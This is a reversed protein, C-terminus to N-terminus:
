GILTLIQSATDANARKRAYKSVHLAFLDGRTRLFHRLQDLQEEVQKFRRSLEKLRTATATGDTGTLAYYIDFSDRDRKAISVSSCKSLVLASLDVLAVEHTLHAGSPLVGDVPVRSWLSEDFVIRSSPFCISKIVATDLADYNTRVGLDLIDEFMEANKAGELPHMLDVNFVFNNTKVALKKLLQFPHKASPIYGAAMLARVANRISDHEDNFLIDVDATGPHNLTEHNGRLFPAWGGAVVYQVGSQDLM